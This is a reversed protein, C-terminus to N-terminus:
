IWLILLSFLVRELGKFIIFMSQLQSFVLAKRRLLTIPFPPYNPLLFLLL